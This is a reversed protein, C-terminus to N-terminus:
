NSGASSTSSFSATSAQSDISDSSTHRTEKKSPSSSICSCFQSESTKLLEDVREDEDYKNFVMDQIQDRLFDQLQSMDAFCSDKTCHTSEFGSPHIFVEDGDAIWKKRLFGGSKYKMVAEGCFVEGSANRITITSRLAIKSGNKLEVNSVFTGESDILQDFESGIAVTPNDALKQDKGNKKDRFTLKNFDAGTYTQISDKKKQAMKMVEDVVYERFSQQIKSNELVQQIYPNSTPIHANHTAFDTLQKLEEKKQELDALEDKKDMQERYELNAKQEGIFYGCGGARFLDRLFDFDPHDIHNTICSKIVTDLGEIDEWSV